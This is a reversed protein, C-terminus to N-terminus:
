CCKILMQEKVKDAADNDKLQRILALAFEFSTGPGRSTIVNGDVQVRSQSYNYGAGVIEQQVSPYSTLTKGKAIGNAAFVTPGACIAALIKNEKEHKMLIDRVVVSQALTKAGQLGGPLIVADYTKDKLNNLADDPKIWVERSCRVPTDGTLGGITVDIGARRLIDAVVSAEIEEAGEALILLASKGGFIGSLM